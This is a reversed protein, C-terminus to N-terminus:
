PMPRGERIAKAAESEAEDKLYRDYIPAYKEREQVPAVVNFLIWPSGVFSSVSTTKVLSQRKLLNDAYEKWGGGVAARDFGRNEALIHDRIVFPAIAIDVLSFQDGLFYPGKVKEAFARLGKNFDALAAARKDDTQAQILRMYPPVISKTM